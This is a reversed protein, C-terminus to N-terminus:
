RDVDDWDQIFWEEDGDVLGQESTTDDETIVLTPVVVVHARQTALLSALTPIGPLPETQISVDVSTRQQVTDKDPLSPPPLTSPPPVEEETIIQSFPRRRRMLTRDSSLSPALRRQQQQELAINEHYSAPRARGSARKAVITSPRDFSITNHTAPPPHQPDSFLTIPHDMTSPPSPLDMASVTTPTDIAPQTRHSKPDVLQLAIPPSARANSPRSTISANPTTPPTASKQLPDAHIPPKPAARPNEFPAGTPSPQPATSPTPPSRTPSSINSKAPSRTSASKVEISRLRSPTLSVKM